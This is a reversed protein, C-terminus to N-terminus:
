SCSLLTYKRDRKLEYDYLVRGLNKLFPLGLMKYDSFKIDRFVTQTLKVLSLNCGIFECDVFIIETLDTNSFNCNIFTCNEYEGKPLPTQTFNTINYVIMQHIERDHPLAFVLEVRCVINFFSVFM